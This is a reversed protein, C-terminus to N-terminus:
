EVGRSRVRGRRRATAGREGAMEAAIRELDLGAQILGEVGATAYVRVDLPENRRGPRVVWELKLHGRRTPAERLKEATVGDFFVKNYPHRNPYHCYGPVPDTGNWDNPLEIALRKYFEVKATDVGVPYNAVRQKNKATPTGIVPRGMGDVGHIPWVRANVRAKCYKLVVQTTYKADVCTAAIRLRRGCPHEFTAELAHDLMKWTEPNTPDGPIRLYNLSWSELGVGWGVIEVELRDAQVDVGATIVLVGAPLPSAEYEERRALLADTEVTAGAADWVQNLRTNVFVQLLRPRGQAKLWEDALLSWPTWPSYLANLEDFGLWRGRRGKTAKENRRVLKWHATGGAAEDRIMRTRYRDEIAVGCKECVYCATEPHHVSEGESGLSKEWRLNEWVLRQHHGCHPCPVFYAFVEDCEDIAADIRSLGAVTPTSCLMALGNWFTTGRKEGLEIPDGEEGASPPYGDVEDYLRIRRPRSRLGSPANAGVIGLHGGPFSKSDITNDSDRSKAATVKRRLAPSEEIMPAIREKSYKKAELVSIQVFLIPAPDQDIYYGLVNNEAESGGVQAPKKFVVREVTPDSCADMIARLYPTRNTRWRGPEASTPPLVRYLDAWESVTLRSRPKLRERAAQATAGWARAWAEDPDISTALAVAAATRLFSRRRM